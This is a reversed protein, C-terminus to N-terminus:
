AVEDREGEPHRQEENSLLPLHCGRIDGRQALSMRAVLDNRHPLTGKPAANLLPALPV